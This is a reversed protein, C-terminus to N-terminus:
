EEGGQGAPSTAQSKQEVQDLRRKIQDIEAQLHKIDDGTALRLDQIAERIRGGIESASKAGVGSRRVVEDVLEQARERGMSASGVTAQFTREVANRVAEPISQKSGKEM